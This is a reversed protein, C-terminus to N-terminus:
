KQISDYNETVHVEPTGSQSYWLKFQNFDAGNPSAIADAFDMITVAQGDHRRVYENMGKRFGETGVITQMMRILESGKEYITPTYFNDVALCSEPRVPHANPGADESFQRQRLADVDKIRQVSRSNLDSSFEQDRF